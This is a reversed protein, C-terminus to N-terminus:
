LGGGALFRWGVLCFSGVEVVVPVLWFLIIRWGLVSISGAVQRVIGKLSAKLRRSLCPPSSWLIPAAVNEREREPFMTTVALSPHVASSRIPHLSSQIVSATIPNLFSSFHAFTIACPTGAYAKPSSMCAM